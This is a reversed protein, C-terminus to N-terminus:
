ISLYVSVYLFLYGNTTCEYTRSVAHVYATMYVCVCVYMCVHLFHQASVYTYVYVYIHIYQYAYSSIGRMYESHIAVHKYICMYIYM